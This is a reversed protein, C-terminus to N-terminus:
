PRNRERSKRRNQYILYLSREETREIVVTGHLQGTLTKVLRLGLSMQNELTIGEPM